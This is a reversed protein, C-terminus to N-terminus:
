YLMLGPSQEKTKPFNLLEVESVLSPFCSFNYSIQRHLVIKKEDVHNNDEDNDVNTKWQIIRIRGPLARDLSKTQKGGHAVYQWIVEGNIWNHDKCITVKIWYPRLKLFNNNWHFKSIFNFLFPQFALIHIFTTQFM